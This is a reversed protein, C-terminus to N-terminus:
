FFFWIEDKLWSPYLLILYIMRHSLVFTNNQKCKPSSVVHVWFPKLVVFLIFYFHSFCSFDRFCSFYIKRTKPSMLIESCSSSLSISHWFRFAIFLRSFFMDLFIFFLRICIRRKLSLFMLFIIWFSNYQLAYQFWIDSILSVGYYQSIICYISWFFLYLCYNNRNRIDRSLKRVIKLIKWDLFYM